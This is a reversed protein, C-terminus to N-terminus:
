SHASGWFEEVQDALDGRLYTTGFLEFQEELTLAIGM